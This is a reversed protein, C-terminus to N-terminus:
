EPVSHTLLQTGGIVPPQHLFARLNPPGTPRRVQSNPREQSPIRETQDTVSCPEVGLDTAWVGDASM